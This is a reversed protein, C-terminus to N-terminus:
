VIEEGLFEGMRKAATLAVGKRDDYEEITKSLMKSEAIYDLLEEDEVGEGQKYLIDLWREAIAGCSEYM